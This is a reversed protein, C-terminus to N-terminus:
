GDIIDDDLMWVLKRDYEEKLTKLFPFAECPPLRHSVYCHYYVENTHLDSELCIQVGEQALQSYCHWVPLKAWYYGSSWQDPVQYYVRTMIHEGLYICFLLVM